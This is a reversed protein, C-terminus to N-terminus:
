EIRTPRDIRHTLNIPMCQHHTNLSNQDQPRWFTMMHIRQGEGGAVAELEDDNLRQAVPETSHPKASAAAKRTKTKQFIKM